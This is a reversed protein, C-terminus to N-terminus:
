TGNEHRIEPNESRIGSKDKLLLFEKRLKKIVITKDIQTKKCYDTLNIQAGILEGILPTKDFIKLKFTYDFQEQYKQERATQLTLHLLTVVFSPSKSPNIKQLNIKQFTQLLIVKAIAINPAIELAIGYVMPSYVDIIREFKYNSAPM